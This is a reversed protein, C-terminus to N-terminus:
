RTSGGRFEPRNVSTQLASDHGSSTSIGRRRTGNADFEYRIEFLSDDRAGSVRNLEDYIVTEAQYTESAYFSWRGTYDRYASAAFSGEYVRNGAADYHYEALLGESVDAMYRLYGNAYYQYVLDQGRSSTQRVLQGASDYTYSTTANALDVHGTTHGFYDIRDVLGRGDAQLTTRVDPLRVPCM